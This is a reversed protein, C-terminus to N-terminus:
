CIIGKFTSEVFLVKSHQSLQYYRQINVQITIGRFTSKSLLVESHQSPYYYRQLNVRSIIGRFTSEVLLAESPQSSQYYRQLNALYYRPFSVDVLSVNSQALLVSPQQWCLYPSWFTITQFSHSLNKRHNVLTETMLQRRSGPIYNTTMSKICNTTM